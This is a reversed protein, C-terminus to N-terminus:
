SHGIKEYEERALRSSDESRNDKKIINDSSINDKSVIDNNSKSNFVNSESNSSSNHNIEEDGSESSDVIEEDINFSESMSISISNNNKTTNKKSNKNTNRNTNRNSNRISNKNSSKNNNNKTNNKILKEWKLKLNEYEEKKKTYLSNSADEESKNNKTYKKQMKALEKEIQNDLISMNNKDEITIKKGLCVFHEIVTRKKLFLQDLNIESYSDECENKFSCGM